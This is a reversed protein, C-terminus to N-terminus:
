FYFMNGIYHLVIIKRIFAVPKPYSFVDEDFIRKVEITAAQNMYENESGFLSHVPDFLSTADKRYRKFVFGRENDKHNKKFKIKGDAIYKELTTKSFAWYRGIPPVDVKHTYPNKIEFYTSAGGSKASPDGACWEGNPDNDPNAYNNYSKEEGKLIMDAQNKAYLILLEHQLNFGNGNDGTM